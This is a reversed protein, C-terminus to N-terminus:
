ALRKLLKFARQPAGLWDYGGELKARFLDPDDCSNAPLRKMRYPDDGAKVRGLETTVCCLYGAQILLDRFTQVFPRNGQPFAYPYAFTTAPEGLQQEIEARSDRLEREIEKESLHELEPHNVTHSGFAFGARRMERVEPWTLIEKGNFSAGQKGVFATALFMTSTFAHEQLAPFAHLYFDRYGDDFTIIVTREPPQEGASLLRVAHMLDMTKYGDGALLRMQQSFVGPATNTRYYAAVGNEPDDSLSHYMLIPLRIGAVGMGARHLPQFVTTTLQRDLRM